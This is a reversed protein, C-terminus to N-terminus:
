VLSITFTERLSVAPKRIVLAKDDNIYSTELKVTGLGKSVLKAHKITKPAGIIVVREIWEKTPYSADKNIFTSTLTNDKYDFRIYLFEKNKYGFTEYDDVYLTGTASKNSDLAVYITFPDDHMLTSARRPRDKRPIISGGKYFVPVKDLSVPLNVNGQGTFARYDEIDYWIETPGGPFYINVNTAQSETVPRAMVSNGILLQSEIDVVNVDKPYHYVLPRIVPDGTISHEWFLTYWLPIHAYRQRLASRIRRQVDESYLYPERRKTDIHAHARVFPLWAAAQYWRLLLEQDPNHFFGGIDAGCFSIGAVAESLCMPISAVLHSWEAANDGTWIAAYRQTGAFHARTLTFPRKNPTRKMLGNYTILNTYLSHINHLHRHEWGGYHLLDKPMTIEPGNFVSPENMDNWIYLADSSGKFREFSYLDAFYDQVVPNFVDMYSSSGPWCWGEYVNGDKNKIYYGNALAEEHVFYGSERKIHPDIITILRRGTKTLNAQMELPHPFRIPDWTFYKKGDTYEIDLWIYDVPFDHIDMNEIVMKVDEEDNYNWRCQHYGLTNYQPLPAVGTLTAYQRIADGFTPGMLIFLDVIGSESMFHVDVRSETKTGSMLNVLSSVVNADKSNNIDVWTEASNLWFVGITHEPGHGYLVPVSGYIAMTSDLEYEFVDLNYLRYPELGGKGTTRLAFKDAHEPIGYARLAGPFTIDVGVAEPGRPKSDQHSKFNEEWAGPDQGEVETGEAPKERLHEIQFLGRSNVIAAIQDNEYFEAKFPNSKLIVKNNGAKISVQENNRDLLEIKKPEPDKELAVEVKYRPHLPQIEDVQMRFTDGALAQLSFKFTVDAETNKLQAEVVNDYVKLAELDLVYKSNDISINRLRRCFSSQDCTKFNGKDVAGVFLVLPLIRTIFRWVAM